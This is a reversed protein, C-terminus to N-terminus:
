NMNVQPVASICCEGNAMVTINPENKDKRRVNKSEAGINDHFDSESRFWM